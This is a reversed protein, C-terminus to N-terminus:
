PRALGGLFRTELAALARATRFFAERKYSAELRLTVAPSLGASLRGRLRWPTYERPEFRLDLSTGADPAARRVLRPAEERAHLGVGGDASLVVNPSLAARVATVALHARVREPTYYPDYVGAVAGPAGDGPPGGGPPGGNVPRAAEPGFTTTDADQYRFAYGLRIASRGDTWIPALAWAWAHAVEGGGPFVDLRGGLEGGWGTPDARSLTGELTRAFVATDVSAATHEYSWRRAEVGLEFRSPLLVAARAAGVFGTRDGAPRAHIGGAAELRLPADRPRASLGLRGELAWTEGQRGADLRRAAGEGRLVVRPSLPVGSEVRLHQRDLPQDDSEIGSEVRIWPAWLDRMERWLELAPGYDPDRQLAARLERRAREDAGAWYLTRARLWRVGVDDPYRGLWDALEEAAAEYRGDGILRRADSVEATDAAQAGLPAPSLPVALGALALAGALVFGALPRLTPYRDM